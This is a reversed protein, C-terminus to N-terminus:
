AHKKGGEELSRAIRQFEGNGKLSEFAPHSLIRQVSQLIFGRDRPAMNGLPLRDIWADLLDFYGDGHLLIEGDLLMQICSEFKRLFELAKGTDGHKAYISAAQCYFQAALNPHLRGLQFLEMVGLTRQITTKCRSIDNEYLSLSMVGNGVLNLLSAYQGIQVHSKAHEPEGAMQYAQVLLAGDQSSIRSPDAAPELLEVAEKPLGLQLKLGAKVVLADRCVGVDGCGDLIHECWGVAEQLVQRGQEETGAVMFHNWCLTSLQLLFPYCSYYRRAFTCTHEWAEEFPLSAFEKALDGYCRRIQESSLQAEYGVLEDITVGFFAALQPLLLIDPMSQANEWKSVSAKTVGIFDALEEQTLKRARRLRILNESLNLVNM